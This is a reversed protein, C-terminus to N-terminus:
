SGSAELNKAVETMTQAYGDRPSGVGREWPARKRRDVTPFTQDVSALHEVRGLRVSTGPLGVFRSPTRHSEEIL